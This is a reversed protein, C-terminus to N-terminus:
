SAKARQMLRAHNLRREVRTELLSALSEIFHGDDMGFPQDLPQSSVLAVVFRVGGSVRFGCALFASAGTERGIQLSQLEPRLAIDHCSATGGFKAVDRFLSQSLPVVTGTHPLWAASPGRSITEEVHLVDGDVRLLHAAFGQGPRLGAAAITLLARTMDEETLATNNSLKWLADLRRVHMAM